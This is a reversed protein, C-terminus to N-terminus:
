KIPNSHIKELAVINEPYEEWTLNRKIRAPSGMVLSGDPIVTNKTVLSRAAANPRFHFKEISAMVRKKLEPSVSKSDNMVRSVTSVSVGADAAIDKITVEM